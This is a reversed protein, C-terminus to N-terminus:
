GSTSPQKASLEEHIVSELPACLRILRKHVFLNIDRDRGDGRSSIEIAAQLLSRVTAKTNIFGNSVQSRSLGNQRALIHKDVDNLYPHLFNEFLWSRFISVSREPLGCQPRWLCQETVVLKLPRSPEDEENDGNGNM